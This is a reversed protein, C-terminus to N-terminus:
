KKLTVFKIRGDVTRWNKWHDISLFWQKLRMSGRILSRGGTEGNWCLEIIRRHCKNIEDRKESGKKPEVLPDNAVFTWLSELRKFCHNREISWQLASPCQMSPGFKFMSFCKALFDVSGFDYMALLLLILLTILGLKKLPKLIMLRDCSLRGLSWPDVLYWMEVLGKM